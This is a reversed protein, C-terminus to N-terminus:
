ACTLNWVRDVRDNGAAGFYMIKQGPRLTAVLQKSGTGKLNWLEVTYDSQNNASSWHGDQVDVPVCSRLTGNDIWLSLPHPELEIDRYLCLHGRNCTAEAAASGALALMAISLAALVALVRKM